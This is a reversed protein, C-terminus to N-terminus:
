GPLAVAMDLLTTHWNQAKYNWIIATGDKSGSIFKLSRNAWLLSDVRDSHKEM